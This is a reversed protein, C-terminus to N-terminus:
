ATGARAASPPLCATSLTPSSSRQNKFRCGRRPPLARKLGCARHALSPHFTRKSSPSVVYDFGALVGSACANPRGGDAALRGNEDPQCQLPAERAFTKTGAKAPVGTQIRPSAFGAFFYRRCLRVRLEDSQRSLQLSLHGLRSSSRGHDRGACDDVQM